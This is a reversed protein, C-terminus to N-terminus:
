FTGSRKLLLYHNVLQPGFQKPIVDLIPLQYAALKDHLRNRNLLQHINGCYTLAEDFDNIAQQSIEDRTEERMSAILIKHYRSLQKFASITELSESYRLNTIVIVLARRQTKALLKQVATNYDAPTQTSQIDYVANLLTNLQLNGKNPKIYLEKDAGFTAFGVADGQRLAVYSLLLCANLAHDFHSLQEDQLRMRQGCDLLFIIHQDREDQYEKAIPTKQRATAKWDIQRLTDGERFERLQHFDQGLGRRPKPRVGLYYIWQEITTINSGFLRTFDPYVHSDNTVPVIRRQQWLQWQSTVTLECNQWIFHGRETPKVSYKLLYKGNAPLQLSHPLQKFEITTPPYDYVTLPLSANQQNSILLSVEQWRNLSLYHALQREITPTAIKRVSLMDVLAFFIFVLIALLWLQYFNDPLSLGMAKFTEALIIIVLFAGFATVLPRAPKLLRRSNTPM